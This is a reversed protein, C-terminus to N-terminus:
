RWPSGACSQPNVVVYIRRAREGDAEVLGVSTLQGGETTILGPTGNVEVLAMDVTAPWRPLDRALVPCDGDSDTIVVADECLSIQGSLLM